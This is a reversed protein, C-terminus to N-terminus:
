KSVVLQKPMREKNRMEVRGRENTHSRKGDAIIINHKDKCVNLKSECENHTQLFWRYSMRKQSATNFEELTSLQKGLIKESYEKHELQPSCTEAEAYHDTGSQQLCCVPVSLDTNTQQSSMNSFDETMFSLSHTAVISRIHIEWSPIQNASKTTLNRM